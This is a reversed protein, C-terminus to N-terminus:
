LPEDAISDFYKQAEEFSNYPIDHWTTSNATVYSGNSLQHVRQDDRMWMKNNDNAGAFRYQYPMWTHSQSKM